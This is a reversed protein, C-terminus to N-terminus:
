LIWQFCGVDKAKSRKKNPVKVDDVKAELFLISYICVMCYVCFLACSMMKLARKRRGGGLSRGGGGLERRWAVAGLLQM